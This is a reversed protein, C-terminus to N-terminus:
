KKRSKKPTLGLAACGERLLAEDKGAIGRWACLADLKYSPQNEDVLTAAAATEELREPPPMAVGLDTQLWGLDYLTNHGVIHVDSAVLDQLWRTLADRDVNATDPIHWHHTSRSPPAMPAGRSASAASM